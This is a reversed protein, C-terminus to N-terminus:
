LDIEFEFPQVPQGDDFLSIFEVCSLPSDMSSVGVQIRRPGVSVERMTRRKIALAIPCRDCAGPEGLLIDDQTVQIKM